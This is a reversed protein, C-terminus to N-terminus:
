CDGCSGCCSGCSSMVQCGCTEGSQCSVCCGSGYGIPRLLEGGDLGVVESPASCRAVVERSAPEVAVVEVSLPLTRHSSTVESFGVRGSLSEVVRRVRRDERPGEVEVVDVAVHGGDLDRVRPILGVVYGPYRYSRYTAMAGTPVSVTVPEDDAVSVTLTIMHVSKRLEDILRDEKSRVFTASGNRSAVGPEGAAEITADSRAGGQAAAVGVLLLLVMPVVARACRQFVM